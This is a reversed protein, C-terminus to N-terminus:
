QGLHDMLKRLAGLQSCGYTVIMDAGARRIAILSELLVAPGDIWGNIAAAQIMAYEGSVQYAAIPVACLQRLDSIVDLYLGAPKVMLIDAGEHVDLLAERHAERRNAPDMQYSRKNGFQLQSGLVQRFPGYLSSAYKATYSLIGVQTHGSEDLAQRICKVRGDMMDSPAVFSAGADAHVLAMECLLEVTADNLVEGRENVLGDHGHSTYPDLAIDSFLVAEPLEEKLSRIASPLLGQRNLAERGSPDKRGSPIQAFLLFARCGQSWLLRAEQVFLDLSLRYVGPLSEVPARVHYGECVFLPAVLHNCGLSTERMLGRLAESSRNRRPRETLIHM